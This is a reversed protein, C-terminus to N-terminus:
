RLSRERTDSARFKNIDFRSPINTGHMATSAPTEDTVYGYAVNQHAYCRRAVREIYRGTLVLKRLVPNCIGHKAMIEKTERASAESASLNSDGVAFLSVFRGLHAGQVGAELLRLIMEMDASCRLSPDFSLLGDGLLRRRFFMTCTYINLFSNAVYMRRLPIERRAAIARGTGDVVIGDGYVMDLLPNRDFADAVLALTGPLYQEDANLWSVISGTSQAWAKQIADYMGEDRASSWTLGKQGALWDVTGDTSGGDM